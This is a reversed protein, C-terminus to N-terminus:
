LAPLDKDEGPGLSAPCTMSFLFPGGLLTALWPSVKDKLLKTVGPSGM